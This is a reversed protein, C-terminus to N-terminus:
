QNGGSTTSTPKTTQEETALQARLKALTPKITNTVYTKIDAIEKSLNERLTRTTTLSAKFGTPDSACDMANLDTLDQQYTAVDTKYTAIKTALTQQESSLEATDLGKAKLKPLLATLHTSLEEYAKNRQDVNAHVKDGLTKIPTQAVKCKTQLKQTEATTLKLKEDAKHKEVRAQLTAGDKPTETETKPTTTTTTSSTTKDETKTTTSSGSGSSGSGSNTGSGGEAAVPAIFLLTAIFSLGILRSFRKLM